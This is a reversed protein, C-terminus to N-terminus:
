PAEIRITQEVPEATRVLPEVGRGFQYAVVKVTIPFTARAPLEAVSLKGDAIIAPGHAVYYEVPLGADSTARLAVPASRATLNGIPPFTITQPAGRTLGAFGRPLMGVQETYRYEDDGVSYAMFTSRVGGTAPALGDHRIRLRNASVAVLPGGVPKVLIPANSHGVPKGADAWRPGGSPHPLPYRDAYLPHVEFTQGDGVWRIESFFYRAGADVFCPDSWRIFQDRKGLGAHYSATAEAMERDFHWAARSTDGAYDGYPAPASPRPSEIALDSLWGSAPDVTKCVVPAQAGRPWDPIRARAAKRIFLALYAANRDSWAFHGAGPEVVLSALNRPDQARFAALADRGGQWAERGSEDRLVGGFEDFQGLMMLVPVGPPVPPDGGPVGGRYQVLGFCRDAMKIALAKAQPGGASHGVFMVPAARLEHYGSLDALEGLVGPLEVDGLGCTFFLIALGEEECARRIVADKALASEMLTMGAVLLGRVQEAKPPIWLLATAPKKPTTVPVAYQFVAGSASRPVAAALNAAVLTALVILSCPIYRM